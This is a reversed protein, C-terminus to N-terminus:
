LIPKSVALLIDLVAHKEIAMLANVNNLVVSFFEEFENFVQGIHSFKVRIARHLRLHVRAIASNSSWVASRDDKDCVILTYKGCIVTPM